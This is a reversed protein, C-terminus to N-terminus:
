HTIADMYAEYERNVRLFMAADGTPNDPHYQKVLERHKKKAEEASMGSFINGCAASPMVRRQGKPRSIALKVLKRFFLYTFDIAYAVFCATYWILNLFFMLIGREFSYLIFSITLPHSIESDTLGPM